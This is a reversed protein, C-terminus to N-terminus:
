GMPRSSIKKRVRVCNGKGLYELEDFQLRSLMIGRGHATFFNSESIPDPVSKWEFGDGEDTIVWECYSQSMKFEITINKAKIVPDALKQELLAVLGHPSSQLAKTKEQYGIGLNGHEIANVILEFLGLRVGLRDNQSLSNGTELILRNAVQGVLQLRNGFQLVLERKLIMGIIQMELTRSEIISSYKELSTLVEDHRIPKILFDNARFRLANITNEESGYATTMVVIAESSRERIEALLRLGDMKPMCIDSFVLDPSFSDFVQLGTEGDRAVMVEFGQKKITESLYFGGLPDDEVVLVKM